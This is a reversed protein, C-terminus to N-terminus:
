KAIPFPIGTQRDIVLLTLRLNGLGWRNHPIEGAGNRTTSVSYLKSGNANLVVSDRLQAVCYTNPGCLELNQPIYLSDIKCPREKQSTTQFRPATQTTFLRRVASKLGIAFGTNM